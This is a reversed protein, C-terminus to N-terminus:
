RRPRPRRPLVLEVLSLDKSVRPGGQLARAGQVGTPFHSSLQAQTIGPASCTMRFSWAAAIPKCAGATADPGTNSGWWEARAGSTPQLIPGNATGAVVKASWGLVVIPHGVCCDLQERDCGSTKAEPAYVSHVEIWQGPGPTNGVMPLLNTEGPCGQVNEVPAHYHQGCQVLPQVCPGPGLRFRGSDQSPSLSVVMSNNSRGCYPDPAARNVNRPSQPVACPPEVVPPTVAPPAAAPPAVVAGRTALAVLLLPAGLRVAATVRM